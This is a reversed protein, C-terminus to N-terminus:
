IRAVPTSAPSIPVGNNKNNASAALITTLRNALESGKGTDTISNDEFLRALFELDRGPDTALATKIATAVDKIDAM